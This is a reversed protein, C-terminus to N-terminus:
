VGAVEGTMCLRRLDALNQICTTLQDAAEAHAAIPDDHWASIIFQNTSSSQKGDVPNLSGDALSRYYLRGPEIEICDVTTPYIRKERLDVIVRHKKLM